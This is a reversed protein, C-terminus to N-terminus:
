LFPMITQEQVMIVDLSMASATDASRVASGNTTSVGPLM